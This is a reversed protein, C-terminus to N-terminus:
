IYLLLNKSIDIPLANIININVNQLWLGYKRKEWKAQEKTRIYYGLRFGHKRKIVYLYPNLSQLWEAVESCGTHCATRFAIDNDVSINIDPKVTLLWQAVELHGYYCATIFSREICLYIDTDFNNFLEKAVILDGISCTHIFRRTNSM